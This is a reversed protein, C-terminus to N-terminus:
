FRFMAKAQADIFSEKDTSPPAAAAAIASERASSEREAQLRSAVLQNRAAAAGQMEALRAAKEAATLPGRSQAPAAGEGTGSEELRARAEAQVRKAAVAAARKATELANRRAIDEAEGSAFTLGYGTGKPQVSAADRVPAPLPDATSTPAPADQHSRKSDKRDRRRERRHDTREAIEREAERRIDRMQVPNARVQQRLQQERQKIAMLPDAHMRAWQENATPQSFGGAGGGGAGGSDGGAMGTTEGKALNPKALTAEDKKPEWAKGLLYEDQAQERQMAGADDYLFDVREPKAAGGYGAAAAQDAVEKRAREDALQRALERTKADEAAKEQEKKWVRERAKFGGTHWSKKNLFAMGKSSM